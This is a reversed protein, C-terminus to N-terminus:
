NERKIEPFSIDFCSTVVSCAVTWDGVSSFAKSKRPLLKIAKCKSILVLM